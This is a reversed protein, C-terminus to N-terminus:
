SPKIRGLRIETDLNEIMRLNGFPVFWIRRQANWVGGLAETEGARAWGAFTFTPARCHVLVYPRNPHDKLESATIVLDLGTGNERRARVEVLGGVDVIGPEGVAPEWFLNLRRGVAFEAWASLIHNDMTEPDENPPSGNIPRLSKTLAFIQRRLGVTGAHILDNASLVTQRM